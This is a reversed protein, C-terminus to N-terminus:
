ASAVDDGADAGQVPEAAQQCRAWRPRFTSLSSRAEVEVVYEISAGRVPEIRIM